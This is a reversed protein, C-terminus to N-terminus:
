GMIDKKLTKRLIAIVTDTMLQEAKKNIVDKGEFKSEFEKCIALSETQYKDALAIAEELTYIENYIPVWGDWTDEAPIKENPNNLDIIFGEYNATHYSWVWLQKEGDVEVEIPHYKPNELCKVLNYHSNLSLVYCTNTM